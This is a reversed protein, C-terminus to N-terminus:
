TRKIIKTLILASTLLILGLSTPTQVFTAWNGDAIQLARRFYEEAMPGIIFGMALPAASLDLQRLVYGIIGFLVLWVVDIVNGSISYAGGFCIIVIAPYLWSNPISLIKVWLRILPLNIVLLLLNGIWMSVVLAWFLHQNEGILQPGPQIDNIMLASIMIAMVPTTPIGLSLMPIFSTQAGANNAAEPSAVGKINGRGFSWPKSSRYKEIAYAVFSSLISGGGPLVGLISGVTSGRAIAGISGTIEKKTPYIKKINIKTHQGNTHGHQINYLVEGLGFIGMAIAAFTLGDSLYMNGATFRLEGSNIDTGILGLLAGIMAMAIGDIVRGDAIVSSAVLGLLMLSAYDSPGLMVGLSSLPVALLAILLTAMTGAAFSAIAAIALASGARGSKTMQYGDLTTIVSAAEGPVRLLIAATSGGYQTGYYVGALFITSSIPNDISFVMPLLLSLAGMPGLGPLVGVLTGILVGTLCFILNIPTAAHEAGVILNNLLDIM